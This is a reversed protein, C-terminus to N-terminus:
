EDQMILASIEPHRLENQVINVCIEPGSCEDQIICESLEPRIFSWSELETHVPINKALAAQWEPKKYKPNRYFTAGKKLLLHLVYYFSEEENKTYIDSALYFLALDGPTLKQSDKQNLDINKQSLLLFLLTYDPKNQLALHLANEGHKGQTAINCDVDNSICHSIIPINRTRTADLFLYELHTLDTSTSKAFAERELITHLERPNQMPAIALPLFLILLTFIKKM